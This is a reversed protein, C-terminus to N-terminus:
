INKSKVILTFREPNISEILLNSIHVWQRSIETQMLIVGKVKESLIQSGGKYHLCLYSNTHKIGVRLHSGHSTNM